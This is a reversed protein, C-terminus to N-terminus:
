RRKEKHKGEKKDSHKYIKEVHKEKRKSKDEMELGEIYAVVREMNQLRAKRPKQPSSPRSSKKEQEQEKVKEEKKETSNEESKVKNPAESTAPLTMDDCTTETYPIEYAYSPEPAYVEKLELDEKTCKIPPTRSSVCQPSRTPTTPLLNPVPPPGAAYEYDWKKDSGLRGRYYLSLEQDWVWISWPPPEPPDKKESKELEPPTSDSPTAERSSKHKSSQSKTKPM